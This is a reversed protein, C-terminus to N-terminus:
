SAKRLLAQLPQLERRLADADLSTVHRAMAIAAKPTSAQTAGAMRYGLGDLLTAVARIRDRGMSTILTASEFVDADLIVLLDHLPQAGIRSATMIATTLSAIDPDCGLVAAATLRLADDSEAVAAAKSAVRRVAARNSVRRTTSPDSAGGADVDAGMEARTADEVPMTSEEVLGDQAASGDFVEHEDAFDTMLADTM